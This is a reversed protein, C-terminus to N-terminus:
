LSHLLALWCTRGRWHRAMHFPYKETPNEKHGFGGWIWSSHNFPGGDGATGHVEAIGDVIATTGSASMFEGNFTGHVNWAYSTACAPVPPPAPVEVPAPAPKEVPVPAPVEVPVPAPEVVPVPAPEEMPAPAPEEVPVPAPEEPAVPAPEAAPTDCIISPDETPVDLPPADADQDLTVPTKDELIAEVADNANVEAADGSVPEVMAVIASNLCISVVWNYAEGM